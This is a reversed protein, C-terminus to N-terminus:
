QVSLLEVEFILTANPPIPGIGSAGYGLEPPIVLIRTGGVKMGDVGEDWGKIVQGAGLTFTFAENRARSTDFVQGDTLAGIYHVSVSNGSVAAAGTGVTSDQYLVGSQTRSFQSENLPVTNEQTDAQVNESLVAAGDDQSFLNRAPGIGVFFLITVALGM